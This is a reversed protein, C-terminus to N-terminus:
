RLSRMRSGQGTASMAIEDIGSPGNAQSGDTAISVWETTGVQLDRIFVDDRGNTDGPVLNTASSAFAVFRGDASIVPGYSGHDAQAGSSSVSVRETKGAWAPATAALLLGAAALAARGLDRIGGKMGCVPERAIEDTETM